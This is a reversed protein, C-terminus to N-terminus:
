PTPHLYNRSILLLATHRTFLWSYFVCIATLIIQAAISSFIVTVTISSIAMLFSTFSMDFHTIESQLSSHRIPLFILFAISIINEIILATTLSMSPFAIHNHFVFIAFDTFACLALTICLFLGAFILAIVSLKQNKM